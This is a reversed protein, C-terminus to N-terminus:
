GFGLWNPCEPLNHRREQMCRAWSADVTSFRMKPSEGHVLEGNNFAERGNIEGRGSVASYLDQAFLTHLPAFAEENADLGTKSLLLGDDLHQLVNPSANFCLRGSARPKRDPECLCAEADEFGERIQSPTLCMDLAASAVDESVDRAHVGDQAFRSLYVTDVHEHAFVVKGMSM